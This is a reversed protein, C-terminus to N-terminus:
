PGATSRVSSIRALPISVVTATRRDIGRVTGHGLDLPALDREQAAGDAAVYGVRVARAAATASELQALITDTGTASAPFATGEGARVAEAAARPSPVEPREPHEPEPARLRAPRRGLEGSEDEVGPAHGLRQLVVAVEAPEALCVLVGPAIERLGLTAAEATRLLEATAAPDALRVFSGAFGVRVRGVQRALDDVLYTLPQPVPTSSHRALWEHLEEASWGAEIGRRLSTASFRFVGGGGRSEQDALLRLERATGTPLPGPSVATLDAQILVTDVPAPFLRRLPEPLPLAHEALAVGYSSVAGRSVLGLRDAEQWTAAVVAALDPRSTRSLRPQHWAVVEVLAAPDLVAGAGATAALRLVLARVEAVPGAAAAEPGLVHGGQEGARTFLRPTALWAEAVSVWRDAPEAHAWADFAATPLLRGAVDGAVLRAAAASEVLFGARAPALGLRRALAALDRSALGGDRLLRSPSAELGEVALELDHLLEYAAGAAARDVRDADADTRPLPPPAPPAPDPSFRGPRLHLAVERPLIVTGPDLPRLLGYALLQEVPSRASDPDVVRDAARLQGVPSWRLRDLVPQVGSDCRGLREAIERHSLPVPSPPALGGPYPGLRERAARVLQLSADGGWVLALRRLQEVGRQVAARPHGTLEAVATLTVPPVCAAVAEAVEAAFADLRDVARAVSGTTSARSSLDVLDRPLPYTLDPRAHLLGELEEVTWGRLAETLTRPAAAEAPLATV